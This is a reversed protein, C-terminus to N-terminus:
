GRARRRDLQRAADALARLSNLPSADDAEQRGLVAADDDPAARLLETMERIAAARLAVYRQEAPRAPPRGQLLAAIEVVAQHAPETAGASAVPHARAAGRFEAYSRVLDATVPHTRDLPQGIAAARARGYREGIRRALARVPLLCGLSTGAIGLVALGPNEGAWGWGCLALGGAILAVDFWGPRGAVPPFLEDVVDDLDDHHRGPEVLDGAQWPVLVHDAEM